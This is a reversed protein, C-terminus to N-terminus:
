RKRTAAKRKKRSGVEAEAPHVAERVQLLAQLMKPWSHAGGEQQMRLQEAGAWFNLQLPFETQETPEPEIVQSPL